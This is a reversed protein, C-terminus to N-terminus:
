SVANGPFLPLMLHLVLKQDWRCQGPKWLVAHGCPLFQRRTGKQKWMALSQGTNLFQEPSKRPPGTTLFGGKLASYGCSIWPWPVLIGVLFKNASPYSLRGVWCLCHLWFFFLCAFLFRNWLHTHTHLTHRIHTSYTGTCLLPHVSNGILGRRFWSSLSLGARERSGQSRLSWIGKDTDCPWFAWADSLGPWVRCERQPWTGEQFRPVQSKPLTSRKDNNPWETMDSQLEMSQLMGPEETRWQRRANARIWTWQTLSSSRELIRAQLVGHATRFSLM